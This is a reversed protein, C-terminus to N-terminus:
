LQGHIERQTRSILTIFQVKSYLSSHKILIELLSLFQILLLSFNRDKKVHTQSLWNAGSILSVRNLVMFSHCRTRKKFHSNLRSIITLLINIYFYFIAQLYPHNKMELEVRYTVREDREITLFQTSYELLFEKDRREGGM